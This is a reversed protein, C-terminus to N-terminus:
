VEQIQVPNPAAPTNKIKIVGKKMLLYGMLVIMIPVIIIVPDIGGIELKTFETEEEAFALFESTANVRVTNSIESPSYYSGSVSAHIKIQKDSTSMISAVAEGTSGTKKDAMQLIGGEVQWKVKM